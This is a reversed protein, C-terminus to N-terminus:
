FPAAYKEPWCLYLGTCDDDSLGAIHEGAQGRKRIALDTLKAM